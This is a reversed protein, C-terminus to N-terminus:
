LEIYRTVGEILLLWLMWINRPKCTHQCTRYDAITIPASYEKCKEIIYGRILGSKRRWGELNMTLLRGLCLTYIKAFATLCIVRHTATDLM